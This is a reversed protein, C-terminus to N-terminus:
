ANVQRSVAAVVANLAEDLRSADTGGGNAIEPRGGGRGGVVPAIEQIIKGASIGKGTLDKTVMAVLVPKADIVSGLVIVGSGLRDRLRDGIQLMTDRDDASVRTALVAVGNADAVSSLMDDINSTATAVRLEDITRERERLEAQLNRLENALSEAPVHLLRAADNAVQQLQQLHELAARGTLAEIRRIGSGISAESLIVIPGIESAQRVHTGGCLERSFEGISVMRVVDGYKEGFLAMAGKAVAEDYPVVETTVAQNSLLIDNAIQTVRQIGEPGLPTTSTFDFRLRDPAVLSGAQHTDEGLIMRLARHLVHTATHNRRIADRRTADVQAQATQGRQIFGESVEGIHVVLTPSPRQTDHVQFVGTETTIVGTDGVQGGSEGYFPTRDLVIEGAQGADLQEVASDNGFIDAVIGTASTVEYGLFDVAAVRAAAYLQNRDRASDAFTALHQRSRARSEELAARFGENDLGVGADAALEATLEIPFGYTDYLRFADEGSITTGGGARVQEVVDGFRAMGNALTRSFSQEENAVVRRITGARSVMDPYFERYKEIVADVIDVLFPREIGATHGHRVARRLIRRLVYGRGENGPLVGDMILFTAGRVHDSIVRLSRDIREDAGYTVGAIAAAREIMPRHLDTEYMTPADQLILTIRELGMGTDINKRELERLSGDPEKFQEMFVLNWLEMWRDCRPCNPGCDPEGCGYQAGRDAYIESDPGCPGTEGVPGWTNSPDEHIRDLPLNVVEQWLQRAEDDDPRITVRLREPAIGYVNTLLDWAFRIAERKFYDGVSFNGLMEFYTSHSEDGVEDIDVTRFCKQISTMRIAPPQEIGLFYPTMQQMGATTLLVTPDNHPILSSSPVYLHGHEAFFEVFKQRIERSQM